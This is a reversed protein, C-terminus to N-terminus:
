KPLILLANAIKRKPKRLYKGNWWLGSSGGGDLGIADKSGLIRMIQALDEMKGHTAVFLLRKDATVGIASRLASKTLIKPSSFGEKKADLVIKGDKLLVPGCAIVETVGELLGPADNKLVIRYDVEQGIEFRDFTKDKVGKVYIVFGGDPIPQSEKSIAIVKGYGSVAIQKDGYLGTEDGWAKTFITVTNATPFRNIWFAYWYNPADYSGNRSGEIKFSLREVRADGNATFLMASGINSVHVWEGDTMLANTPNKKPLDSYADFFSGNIAALAGKRSAMTGLDEVRGITDGAIQLKVRTQELNASIYLARFPKGRLNITLEGSRAGARPNYSTDARPNSFSLLILNEFVFVSAVILVFSTRSM